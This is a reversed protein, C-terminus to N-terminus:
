KQQISALYDSLNKIQQQVYANNQSEDMIRYKHFEVTRTSLNLIAAIEKPTKGEAILQL